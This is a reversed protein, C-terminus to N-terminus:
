AKFKNSSNSKVIKFNFVQHAVDHLGSTTECSLVASDFLYESVISVVCYIKLYIKEM